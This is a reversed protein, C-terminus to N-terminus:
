PKEAFARSVAEFPLMMSNHRAPYDKAPALIALDAWDGDPAPGKGELMNRFAKEVAELEGRNKGPAHRLVAALAARTLACAEVEFGLQGIREDDFIFDMTLRSGCVPSTVTITSHPNSLRRPEETQSSLATLQGYFATLKELSVGSKRNQQLRPRLLRM